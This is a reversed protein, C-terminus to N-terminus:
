KPKQTAQKQLALVAEQVDNPTIKMNNNADTKMALDAREMIQEPKEGSLIESFAHLLTYRLFEPHFKKGKARMAEMQERLSALTITGESYKFQPVALSKMAEAPRAPSTAM